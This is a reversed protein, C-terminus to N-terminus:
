HLPLPRYSALSRWSHGAVARTGCTSHATLPPSRPACSLARGGPLSLTQKWPESLFSVGERDIPALTTLEEMAEERMRVSHKAPLFIIREEERRPWFLAISLHYSMAFLIWKWGTLLMDAFRYRVSPQAEMHSVRGLPDDAFGLFPKVEGEEGCLNAMWADLIASLGMMDTLSHLFSLTVLTEDPFHTVHIGLQPSDSYLWDDLREPFGPSRIFSKFGCSKTYSPVELVVPRGATDLSHPQTLRSM